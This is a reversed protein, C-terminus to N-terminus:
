LRFSLLHSPPLPMGIPISCNSNEGKKKLSLPRRSGHRMMSGAHMLDHAIFGNKILERSLVLTWNRTELKM